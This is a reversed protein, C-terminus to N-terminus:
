KVAQKGNFVEEARDLEDPTNVGMVDLPDASATAVERGEALALAILDTLYYEQGANNTNLLPLHEWLWRTEFIYLCPNVERITLEAPTSDKVERSGLLQGTADRLIRGWSQFMGFAGDFSPVTATLMSIVAHRAEHLNQLTRIAEASVFPHDGYLVLINAADGAVARASLVAHGTGLQKDQIAFDCTGDLEERFQAVSDPAVVVIPRGDVRSAAVRDLLHAIMPKGAIPVLPKPVQAGMRKGKGAALIVVRTKTM